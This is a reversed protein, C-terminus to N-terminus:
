EDNGQPQTVTLERPEKPVPMDTVGGGPWRIRLATPAPHAAFIQVASNQGYYGSGAQIERAPGVRSGHVPRIVAGVALPNRSPGTLRVRLGPKARLNKYLKTEAANQSVVLDVRGDADFDCLAAGRQEGYILLGSEQGPVPLLQGTGDGKLWLGRGADYRSIEPHTAFFNQSLFVDEHGDGDLDAICVAFAPTLQAEAPLPRAEFSGGRNLFLTTQFWNVEFTQAKSLADGYIQALDARSYAECTAFFAGILPLGRM